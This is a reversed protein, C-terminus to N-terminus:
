LTPFSLCICTRQHPAHTPRVQVSPWTWRRCWGLMSWRQLGRLTLPRSGSQGFLKNSATYIDIAQTIFSANVGGLRFILINSLRKRMSSLKRIIHLDPPRLRPGPPEILGSTGLILSKAPQVAAWLAIKPGNRWIRLRNSDLSPAISVEQSGRGDRYTQTFRVHSTYDCRPPLTARVGM